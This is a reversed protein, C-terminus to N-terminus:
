RQCDRKKKILRALVMNFLKRIGRGSAGGQTRGKSIGEKLPHNASLGCTKMLREELHACLDASLATADDGPLLIARRDSFLKELAESKKLPFGLRFALSPVNLGNFGARDLLVSIKDQLGGSQLIKLDDLIKQKEKQAQGAAPRSDSRRRHHHHPTAACYSIIGGVVVDENALILQAFSQDGPSLEDADLLVIRTM